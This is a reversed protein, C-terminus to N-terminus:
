AKLSADINGSTYATVNVRMEPFLTVNESTSSTYTNLDEWSYDSSMRGQLKVTATNSIEIQFVGSPADVNPYVVSQAGSASINNALNKIPM